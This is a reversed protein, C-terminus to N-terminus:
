LCNRCKRAERTPCDKVFHGVVQTLKHWFIVSCLFPRSEGCNKCEVNAASRPETCDAQAHGGQRDVTLVKENSDAPVPKVAQRGATVAPLVIRALRRVIVLEIALKKM